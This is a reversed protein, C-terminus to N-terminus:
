TRRVRWGLARPKARARRWEKEGPLQVHPAALAAGTRRHVHQFLMVSLIWGMPLATMALWAWERPSGILHCSIPRGATMCGRRVKPLRWTHFAGRQDDSQNREPCGQVPVDGLGRGFSKNATPSGLDLM